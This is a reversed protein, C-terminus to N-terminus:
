GRVGAGYWAPAAPVMRRGRYPEPASLYPTVVNRELWVDGGGGLLPRIGVSVLLVVVVSSGGTAVERAFRAKSTPSAVSASTTSDGTRSTVATSTRRLSPAGTSNRWVRGPSRPTGNSIRLNRVMVSVTPGPPASRGSSSRSVGTPCSSRLVLRSSSGSSILTIRPSILRTPGRGSIM